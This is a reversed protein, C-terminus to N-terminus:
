YMLRLKFKQLFWYAEEKELVMKWIVFVYAAFCLVFGIIAIVTFGLLLIAAFPLFMIGMALIFVSLGRGVFEMQAVRKALYFQIFCDVVVRISWAAAAGLVGFRSSLIWVFGAYPALEIWYLKAFISTHGAATISVHPLAAIINFGAGAALIYFPITSELGFEEGAWITFFPKAIMLLAVLVPILLILNLRIGRTYLGNLRVRNEASQLQSFAPLLSQTLATTFLAMMGALTFAVSYHALAATSVSAALIGKEANMLAIAAVTSIVLAGGFKLMPRFSHRDISLRYLNPLLRGSAYIHGALTLLSATLLVSVAGVIGYGLYIVVPTAILGLIRFGSNVFTNLDMRLRALQPTNFVANLFVVVFTVAAIKLATASQGHYDAPINFIDVIRSSFAFLALAIPVSACFTVFAATRVVRAEKEADGEAYAESGFKTSAISMGFDAFGLFTPILGVLILVGYGEAGLLRITFPTTVLSVGLPAVQGALTWLSGKVVKTTM